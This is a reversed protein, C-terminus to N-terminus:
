AARRLARGPAVDADFCGDRVVAEGNVFVHEIGVAPQPDLLTGSDGIAEFDFVVLDAFAGERLVGRDALRARRAPFSTVRRIAEEVTVLELERCFHGIFRPMTGYFLPLPLSIGDGSPVPVTDTEPIADPRQVLRRLPRDDERDGGYGDNVIRAAGGSARLLDFYVDYPEAGRRRALEGLTEGKETEFGPARDALYLADWGM